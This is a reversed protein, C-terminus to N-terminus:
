NIGYLGLTSVLKLRVEERLSIPSIVQVGEGHKLIDMILERDNSYPVELVYSGDSDYHARQNPHWLEVSVWKAREPSFRLTAWAIDKGGFIGYGNELTAKLEAESIEIASEVSLEVEKLADVSFSRITKRLHCYADLYWNDRYHVLQQPSLVRKTEMGTGRNYHQVKLQKRKLTATAVVSFHEIKLRRKAAHIIKIRKEVDEVPHNGTGILAKLRAQLPAVHSALLGPELNSLLEQMALLAHAEGSNFWLGPLSYSPSLKNPQTYRYGGANRDFAIPAHLRDRMYVIDRKLTALSVGTEDILMSISVVAFENLLQDIKYFRETRDMTKGIDIFYFDFLSM